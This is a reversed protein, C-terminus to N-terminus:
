KFSTLYKACKDFIAWETGFDGAVLSYPLVREYEGSFRPNFFGNWKLGFFIVEATADSVVMNGRKNKSFILNVGASDPYKEFFISTMYDESSSLIGNSFCVRNKVFLASSIALAALALM